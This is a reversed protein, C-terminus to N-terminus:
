EEEEPQGRKGKELAKIIPFNPYNYPAYKRMTRRESVSMIQHDMIEFKAICTRKNSAKHFPRGYFHHRKGACNGHSSYSYKPRGRKIRRIRRLPYIVLCRSFLYYFGDEYGGFKEQLWDEFDMKNQFILDGEETLFEEAPIEELINSLDVKKKWKKLNDHGEGDIDNHTSRDTQAFLQWPNNWDTATKM